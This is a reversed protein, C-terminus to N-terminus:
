GNCWQREANTPLTVKFASYRESTPIVPTAREHLYHSSDYKM